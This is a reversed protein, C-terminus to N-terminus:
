RFLNMLQVPVVITLIAVAIALGAVAIEFGKVNQQKRIERAALFFFIVALPALITGATQRGEGTLLQYVDDSLTFKLMLIWNLAACLLCAWAFYSTRKEVPYLKHLLFSYERASLNGSEFLHNLREVSIRNSASQPQSYSDEFSPRSSDFDIRNENWEREM